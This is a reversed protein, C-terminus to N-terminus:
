YVYLKLGREKLCWCARVLAETLHSYPGTIKIKKDATYEFTISKLSRLLDLDDILELKGSELLLLVNSYLDEKFIGRKKEEGQVQIRKSANNLGIVRRRGLKDQMMEVIPEGLGGTDTFIRNFGWLDDLVQTEGIIMTTRVKERAQTWVAKLKRSQEEVIVNAFEDGGMLALDQGLYYRANALGHDKRNWEIFTMQKKILDTPFYQNYEDIFEGLYEQRYQAKTLRSRESRLFEQSMRVCKESSVHFSKFNKDTFSHYFYGGKGFPTSLLVIYGMSKIKRSVAIMPMVALWVAEPIFAAEDAILLDIDFGRIFHGTRGTPLCYIRSKNKLIIKTMTPKEAYLENGSSRCRADINARVKEFLLSSQRQSAAIIMTKTGPNNVAFRAAKESIVESKGVQRGARITLNGDYDLVSQQWKDWRIKHGFGVRDKYDPKGKIEDETSLMEKGDKSM